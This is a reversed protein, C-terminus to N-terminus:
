RAGNGGKGRGRLWDPSREEKDMRDAISAALEFFSSREFDLSDLPTDAAAEILAPHILRGDTEERVWPEAEKARLIRTLAIQRAM